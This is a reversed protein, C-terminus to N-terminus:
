EIRGATERDALSFSEEVEAVDRLFLPDAAAQQWQQRRIQRRIEKLEKQLAREVIANKSPAAGAAVADDLAALTEIELAFTAKRAQRAM